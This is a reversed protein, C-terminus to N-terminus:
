NVRELFIMRETMTLGMWECKNWAFNPHRFVSPALRGFYSRSPVTHSDAAAM